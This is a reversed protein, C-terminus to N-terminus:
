PAYDIRSFCGYEERGVYMAEIMVSLKGSAALGQWPIVGFPVGAPIKMTGSNKFYDEENVDVQCGVIPLCAVATGPFWREHIFFEVSCDPNITASVDWAIPWIMDVTGIRPVGARTHSEFVSYLTKGFVWYRESGYFDGYVVPLLDSAAHWTFETDEGASHSAGGGHITIYIWGADENDQAYERDDFSGSRFGVAAVAIVALIIIRLISHKISKV